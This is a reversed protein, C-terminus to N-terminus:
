YEVACEEGPCGGSYETKVKLSEEPTKGFTLVQKEKAGYRYVTIGKCKLKYALLYIKKVDEITANAPLNVTKSVANDTYKQFVSQMKIHWEPEIDFATVFVRQIQKPVEKLGQVSGKKSIKSMLSKSFFNKEQAVYEFEKNVELLQTGELIERTFSIAFLPEIGSTCGALISISGTPAITTLTANRLFKYKKSYISGAFNPFSGRKQGIEQSKKHSEDRMFKMLKEAFDLSEKSNYPIELKLLAEAFGMVGLGIKRNAKTIAEIEPLPYKNADIVNDLFHVATHITQKFKEWSFKGKFFMKTLNISGLNCSEYSLLPQEGCPNTSELKGVQPTPNWRNIEDIFVLGPDGTKWANEAILNFLEKASDKKIVTKNRPNILPIELNKEVSNMFEDTASVSTNFNRMASPDAKFAIFERIDPHNIDLIAMNAGRRKGGQKVVDTVVDYIRMFSVPGSAVGHTSKVMDNKPRLKSFNFGTGGGSQHIIAANEASHLINKLSDEIPLVFCASLQGLETGANMLTPTNPLFELNFLVEFFEKETKKSNEKYNNDASAIAKAVREFLRKPTEIIEGKDNKLLYRKALVKIANESLGVDDRIGMITKFEALEHKKKKHEQIAKVVDSFKHKQLIELMVDEVDKVSPVIGEPISKELLSLLEQALKKSQKLISSDKGKVESIAKEIVSEIKKEEFFEFTGDRKRIKILKHM